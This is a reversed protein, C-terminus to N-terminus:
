VVQITDDENMQNIKNGFYKCPYNKKPFQLKGMIIISNMEIKEM